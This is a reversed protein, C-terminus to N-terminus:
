LWWVLNDQMGTFGDIVVWTGMSVFQGTVLGIFLPKGRQFLAPGGYRLMMLKILWSLFVSLAITDTMWMSSLPLSMPHVPWWVLRQRALTLCAM